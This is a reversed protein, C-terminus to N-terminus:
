ARTFRKRLMFASVCSGVGIFITILNSLLNIWTGIGLIWPNQYWWDEKKPKVNTKWEKFDSKEKQYSQIAKAQWRDVVRVQKLYLFTSLGLSIVTIVLLIKNLHTKM